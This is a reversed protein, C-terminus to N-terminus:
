SQFKTCLYPPRVEPMYVIAHNAGKPQLEESGADEIGCVNRAYEIVALQMGMCVGLFPVKKTRAWTIAKIMGETGREGFAGPVLIANATCVDHWAKHFQVPSDQLTEDELHSADVWIINVNRKCHMAAHELSKCVSMYADKLQIYKGVLAVSVTELAHVSGQALGVWKEWMKEGQETLAASREYSDLDLLDSITHLVNQKALLMPVHYTTSVDHVAIIKEPELQCMDAVKRITNDGLPQECRCAIQFCEILQHYLWHSLAPAYWTQSSAPAVSM